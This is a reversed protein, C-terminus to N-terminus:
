IIFLEIEFLSLSTFFSGTVTSDIVQVFVNLYCTRKATPDNVYKIKLAM